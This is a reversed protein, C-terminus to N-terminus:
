REIMLRKVTLDNGSFFQITYADAALISADLEHQLAKGAEASGSV